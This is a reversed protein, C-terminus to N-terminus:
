QVVVFPGGALSPETAVVESVIEPLGRRVLPVKPERTPPVLEEIVHVPRAVVDLRVAPWSRYPVLPLPTAEMAVEVRKPELPVPPYTTPQSLTVPPRARMAVEVAADPTVESVAPVPRLPPVMVEVPVSESEEYRAVEVPSVAPLREYEVVM